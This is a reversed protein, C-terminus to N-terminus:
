ATELRVDRVAIVVRVPQNKTQATVHIVGKDVYVMPAREGDTEIRIHEGEKLKLKM